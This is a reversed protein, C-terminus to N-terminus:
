LNDSPTIYADDVEEPSYQFDEDGVYMIFKFTQKKTELRGDDYNELVHLSVSNRSSYNTITVTVLNDTFPEISFIAGGMFFQSPTSKLHRTVSESWSAPNITPSFSIGVTSVGKAEFQERTM